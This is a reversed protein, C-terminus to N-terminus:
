AAVRCLEHQRNIAVKAKGFDTDTATFLASSGAHPSTFMTIASIDIISLSLDLTLVDFLASSFCRITSVLMWVATSIWSHDRVRTCCDNEGVGSVRLKKEQAM